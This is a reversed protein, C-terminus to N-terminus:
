QTTNKAATIEAEYMKRLDENKWEIIAQSRIRALFKRIESEQRAAYVKDAVVDRVNEFPQPTSAKLTEVKLIQYGKGTPLPQTIDGPKM